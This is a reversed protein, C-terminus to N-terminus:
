DIVFTPEAVDESRCEPCNSPDNVPDDFAEFGCNRCTPPSVLVREDTESLSRAVHRVHDFVASRSTEVRAALETATAAEARLADALRERTTSDM